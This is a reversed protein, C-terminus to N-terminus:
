GPFFVPCLEPPIRRPRGARDTWVWLTRARVLLLGPPEEAAPWFRDAPVPVGSAEAAPAALRVEYARTAKAGEFCVPWTLVQITDGPAAPRLYEIEHRRVIFAGGLAAFREISYGLAASHEIAAHELYHLWTANNVHGLADAEYHRVRFYAAFRSARDEEDRGAM